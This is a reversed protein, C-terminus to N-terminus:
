FHQSPISASPISALPKAHSSYRLRGSICNQFFVIAVDLLHWHSKRSCSHHVFNISPRATEYVELNDLIVPLRRWASSALSPLCPSSVGPRFSTRGFGTSMTRRPQLLALAWNLSARSLPMYNVVVEMDKISWLSHAVVLDCRGASSRRM